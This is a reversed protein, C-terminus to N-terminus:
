TNDTATLVAQRQWLRALALPFFNAQPDYPIYGGYSTEPIEGCKTCTPHYFAIHTIRTSLIYDEIMEDVKPVYNSWEELCTWIARKNNVDDANVIEGLGDPSEIVNNFIFTKTAGHQTTTLEIRKIWPLYMRLRNYSIYNAVDGSDTITVNKRLETIFDNGIAEYESISCQRLTVKWKRLVGAIEYEFNIDRELNCLKRYKILQEDTVSGSIKFHDIMEPTILDNNNLALKSLDAKISETHHCQPNTCMFNVNIGNPHMMAGLAWLITGYDQYSIVQMLSSLKKWHAYNSGVIVGPLLNKIIEQTITLDAFEFYKEGFERGYEYDRHVVTKHYNAIQEVTLPRLRLQIGSNWLTIRQIGGTLATAALLARYGDLEVRDTDKYQSFINASSNGVGEIQDKLLETLPKHPDNHQQEHALKLGKKLAATSNNFYSHADWLHYLESTADRMISRIKERNSQLDNALKTDISEESSLPFSLSYKDGNIIGVDQDDEDDDSVDQNTNTEVLDTLDDQKVEDKQKSIDADTPVENFDDQPKSESETLTAPEIPHPPDLPNIGPKQLPTEQQKQPEVIRTSNIPGVSQSAMRPAFTPAPPTPNVNEFSSGTVKPSRISPVFPQGNNMQNQNPNQPM